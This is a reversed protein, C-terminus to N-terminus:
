RPRLPPRASVTRWGRGRGRAFFGIAIFLVGLLAYAGLVPAIPEGGPHARGPGLNSYSIDGAVILGVVAGIWLGARDARRPIVRRANRTGSLRLLGLAWRPRADPPVADLERVLAEGWARDEPPLTRVLWEIM